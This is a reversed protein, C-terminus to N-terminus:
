IAPLAEAPILNLDMAKDDSATAPFYEATMRGFGKAVKFGLIGSLAMTVSNQPGKTHAPAGVAIAAAGTIAAVAASTKTGTPSLLELGVALGVGLAAAAANNYQGLMNDSRDTIAPLSIASPDGFKKQVDAMLDAAKVDLTNTENNQVNEM